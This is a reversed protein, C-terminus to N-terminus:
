NGKASASAQLVFQTEDNSKVQSFFSRVADYYKVPFDVSAITLRRKTEVVNDQHTALAEYIVAKLDIKPITPVSEIGYGSPAHYKVDDTEQFPYPFVIDNVRKSAKFSKNRADRFVSLPVLMRHGAATGVGPIKVTGEVHVPQSVDDWNSITTAEFQSGDPLWGRIEDGLQKKRGAEDEDRNQERRIAGQQATFDVQLTGTGDGNENLTLDCNRVLEADSSKQDPTIVFEPGDKRLRIGNAGAETWPLLGFPFYRAGPDLFYEHGEAKVWVLDAKLQSSDEAQPLFYADSLPSVYVESADFGAARALGIFLMNIDREGGYGHSLVDEVNANAKLSESKEEKKSKEDEFNLNRIQLAGAYLKRLKAEPSDSSSVIRSVQAQLAGKKDIFKELNGNWKKDIRKWYQEQTENAPEDQGKYFFEFRARVMGAPPMFPEEEVGVVDHLEVFYYGDPSQQLTTKEPLHYQRYELQLGEAHTGTLPRISFKVYRTFLPGQPSWEQDGIYYKQSDLQTQYKYEIISGPQVDPLTFEKSYIKLGGGKEQVKDFNKGDFNVITGDPHITRGRIGIITQEGKIYSVEVDAYKLGEKTFIKTRVYNEVYALPENVKTERYLVMADAGPAKPNDKLALNAPDIPQWEDAAPVTPSSAFMAAVALIPLCLAGRGFRSM